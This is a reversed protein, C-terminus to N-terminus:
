TRFRMGGCVRRRPPKPVQGHPRAGLRVQFRCRIRYRRHSGGRGRRLCSLPPVEDRHVEKDRLLQRSTPLQATEPLGRAKRGRRAVPKGKEVVGFKPRFAGASSGKLRSNSAASRPRPTRPVIRGPRRNDRRQGDRLRRQLRATPRRTLAFAIALRHLSEACVSGAAPGRGFWTPVHSRTRARHVTAGPASRGGADLNAVPFGIILQEDREQRRGFFQM